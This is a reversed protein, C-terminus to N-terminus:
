VLWEGQRMVRQLRLDADLVVVDARLGRRLSGVEDDLGLVDAPVATASRVADALPVGAAVTRQVVQLLTATGGAISGTADLTAVGDAVTVPSPGLMYHGDSLGAAAMSDTVLLVNASGVLDFVTLTTQPDLHTNDAVLEVAARGAQAARLCATVPGPDRHHIPRMGNFLHTVTPRSTSGDFGAAALGDRAAALSSAATPDDSDTHGLSPVVGHTTLLDVLEAAGPLEPAYTMTRLKGNAALILEEALELDPNLLFAPNQAGCRAESLFPGELHIGELLGEETLGVYLEIGHLLDERSATVMSALLSTTGARHLFDIATRASDEQGSPFDGGNGGHCHIDVLGPILIAGDPLPTPEVGDFAPDSFDAAPGAHVIRGDAIAVLGDALSDGDSVIRGRLIVRQGDPSSTSDLPM